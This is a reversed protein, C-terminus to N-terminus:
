RVWYINLSLQCCVNAFVSSLWVLLKAPSYVSFTFIEAAIALSQNEDIQMGDELFQPCFHYFLLLYVNINEINLKFYYLDPTEGLEKLFLLNNQKYMHFKNEKEGAARSLVYKSVFETDNGRLVIDM